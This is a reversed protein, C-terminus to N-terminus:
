PAKFKARIADALERDSLRGPDGHGGRYVNAAEVTKACEEAVLAAFRLLASTNERQEDTYAAEVGANVRVGAVRAM